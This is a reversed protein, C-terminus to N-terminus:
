SRPASVPPNWIGRDSLTMTSSVTRWGVICWCVGTGDTHSCTCAHPSSLSLPSPPLFADQQIFHCIMRVFYIVILFLCRCVGHSCKLPPPPPPPPPEQGRISKSLQYLYTLHGEWNKQFIFRMKWGMGCKRYADRYVM